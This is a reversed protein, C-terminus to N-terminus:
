RGEEAFWRGNLLPIRIKDMINWRICYQCYLNDESNVTILWSGNDNHGNTM